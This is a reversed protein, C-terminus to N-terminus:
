FMFVLTHNTKLGSSKIEEGFNELGIYSLTQFDVCFSERLFMEDYIIM